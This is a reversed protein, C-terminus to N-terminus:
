EINEGRLNIRYWKNNRQFYGGKTVSLKAYVVEDKNTRTIEEWIGRTLRPKLIPHANVEQQFGSQFPSYIKGILVKM